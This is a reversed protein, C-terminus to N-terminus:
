ENAPAHKKRDPHDGKHPTGVMKATLGGDAGKDFAVMVKDGVHFDGLQKPEDKTGYHTTDSLNVTVTEGKMTKMTISKADIATIQGMAGPPRQHKKEASPQQAAGDDRAFIPLCAAMGVAFASLLINRTATKM